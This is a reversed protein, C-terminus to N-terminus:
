RSPTTLWLRSDEASFEVIFQELFSMGLLGDHSPNPRTPMILVPVNRLIANGLQVSSLNARHAQAHSGDALVCTIAEAQSLDLGLEQALNEHITVYAAGTDVLLKAPLRGNFIARAFLSRQHRELPVATRRSSAPLISLTTAGAPSGFPPSSLSAAPTSAQRTSSCAPFALLLTAALLLPPALSRM